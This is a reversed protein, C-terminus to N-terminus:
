AADGSASSYEGAPTIALDHIRGGVLRAGPGCFDRQIESVVEVPRRTLARLTEVDDPQGLVGRGALESFMCHIADAALNYLRPDGNNWRFWMGDRLARSVALRNAAAGDQPRPGQGTISGYTERTAGVGGPRLATYNPDLWNSVIFLEPIWQDDVWEYASFHIGIGADVPRRFPLGALARNLRAAVAESFYQPSTFDGAEAARDRLWEVTSGQGEILALGWYSMAGRWTRVPVIKTQQWEVPERQGDAGLRTLLSDTAHVTGARTILTSIVTM